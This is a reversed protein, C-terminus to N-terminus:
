MWSKKLEKIIRVFQNSNDVYANETVELILSERAINNEDLLIDLSDKFTQDLMEIQSINVSIPINYNDNNWKSM